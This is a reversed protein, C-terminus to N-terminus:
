IFSFSSSCAFSISLMALNLYYIASKELSEIAAFSNDVAVVQFGNSALWLANRGQGCGVDLTKCPKIRYEKLFNILGDSPSSYYDPHREYLDEFNNLNYDM